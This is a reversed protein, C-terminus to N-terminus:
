AGNSFMVALLFGALAARDLRLAVAVGRGVIGMMATVVICLLAMRGFDAGSITSRILSDFILCPALGYLSARALGHVDVRVFRSLLFGVSAVLFIPLLDSAFISLLLRAPEAM